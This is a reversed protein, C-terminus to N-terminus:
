QPVRGLGSVDRGVHPLPLSTKAPQTLDGSMESRTIRGRTRTRLSHKGVLVSGLFGRKM